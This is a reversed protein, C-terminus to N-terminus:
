SGEYLLLMSNGTAGDSILAVFKGNPSIALPIIYDAAPDDLSIDRSFTQVGDKWVEFTGMDPLGVVYKGTVSVAVDYDWWLFNYSDINTEAGAYTRVRIRQNNTEAYVTGSNDVKLMNFIVPSYERSWVYTWTTYDGELEVGNVGLVNDTCNQFGTGNWSYWHMGTINESQLQGPWLETGFPNGTYRQQSETTQDEYAEQLRSYNDLLEEYQRQSTRTQSVIQSTYAINGLSLVLGLIAVM